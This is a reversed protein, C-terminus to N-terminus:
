HLPNHTGGPAHCCGAERRSLLRNRSCSFISVMSQGGEEDSRCGIICKTETWGVGGPQVWLLEAMGQDVVRFLDGLIGDTTENPTHGSM